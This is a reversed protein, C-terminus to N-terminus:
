MGNSKSTIVDEIQKRIEPDRQWRKLGKDQDLRERVYTRIDSDVAGTELCITAPEPIYELEEEIDVEKRSTLLV